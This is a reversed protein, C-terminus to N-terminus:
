SFILFNMVISFALDFPYQRIHNFAHLMTDVPVHDFRYISPDFRKHLSLKEDDVRTKTNQIALAKKLTSSHLCKLFNSSNQDVAFKVRKNLGFM